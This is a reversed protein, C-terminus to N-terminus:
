YKMQNEVIGTALRMWLQFRLIGDLAGHFWHPSRTPADSQMNQHIPQNRPSHSVRGSYSLHPKELSRSSTQVESREYDVKDIWHIWGISSALLSEQRSEM